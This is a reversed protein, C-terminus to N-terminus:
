YFNRRPQQSQQALHPRRLFIFTVTLPVLFFSRTTFLSSPIRSFPFFFIATLFTLSERDREGKGRERETTHKSVGHVYACRRSCNCIGLGSMKLMIADFLTDLWSCISVGFPLLLCAARYALLIWVLALFLNNSTAEAACAHLLTHVPYYAHLHSFIGSERKFKKM